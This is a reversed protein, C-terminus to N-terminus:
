LDAPFSLFEDAGIDFDGNLPRPDGDIDTKVYESVDVGADINASNPALHFDFVQYASGSAAVATMDGWVTITTATNSVIYFHRHQSTDPNVTLGALVDIDFIASGDVLVSQHTGPDYTVSACTGGPAVKFGPDWGGNGAVAPTVLLGDKRFGPNVVSDNVSDATEWYQDTDYDYYAGLSNNYFNNNVIEGDSVENDEHIGSGDNGCIINGLIQVRRNTDFGLHIGGGIGSSAQNLAITNNMIRASMEQYHLSLAGGIAAQNGVFVNSFIDDKYYCNAVALAGGKRGALNGCFINERIEAMGSTGWDLDVGNCVGGGHLGATNDAIVNKTILPRCSPYKDSTNLFYAGGGYRSASNGIIRNDTFVDDGSNIFFGGASDARNGLVQNSRFLSKPGFVSIYVYAGGGAGGISNNDVIQNRVFTGFADFCCIGGGRSSSNAKILNGSAFCESFDRLGIGGGMARGAAQNGLLRCNRIVVAAQNCCIGGGVVSDGYMDSVKGGTITLGNIEHCRAATVTSGLQRGDIITEYLCPDRQWTESNFGGFLSEFDDCLINEEYRGQAISISVPDALSGRVSDIAHQISAWPATQTGDGGTDSGNVGDVFYHRPEMPEVAVDYHSAIGDPINYYNVNPWSDEIELYYTGDRECDFLIYSEARNNVVSVDRNVCLMTEGDTDFLTMETDCTLPDGWPGDKKVYQYEVALNSTMIRYTTGATASFCIYDRDNLPYVNHIYHRGDPVIITAAAPDDDQEYSDATSARSVNFNCDETTQGALVHITGALSEDAVCGGEIAGAYVGASLDVMNYGSIQLLENIRYSSVPLPEIRLIYEGPPLGQLRYRGEEDSYCGVVIDRNDKNVAWVHAGLHPVGERTVTGSITGFDTDFSASPYYTGVGAIDDQALTRLRMGEPNSVAFPFMVAQSEYTERVCSHCLGVFHGIEHVLVAQLDIKGRQGTTSWQDALTKNVVIDADLITGAPYTGEMIHSGSGVLGFDTDNNPDDDSDDFTFEDCLTFACTVALPNDPIADFFVTNSGDLAPHPPLNYTVPDQLDAETRSETYGEFCFAIDSQPVAEWTEFAAEVIERLRPLDVAVTEDSGDESLLWPLGNPFLESAYSRRDWLSNVTKGKDDKFQWNGYGLCLSPLFQLLLTAVLVRELVLFSSSKM